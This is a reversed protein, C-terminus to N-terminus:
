RKLKERSEEDLAKQTLDINALESSMRLSHSTISMPTGGVAGREEMRFIVRDAQPVQSSEAAPMTLNNDAM